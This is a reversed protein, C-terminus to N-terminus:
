VWALGGDFDMAVGDALAAAAAARPDLGALRARATVAGVRLGAAYLELVPRPGLVSADYSMRGGGRVVEPFVTLGAARTAEADVGGVIVGVRLDPNADALAAPELLGGPGLLLRRDAPEAVIMADCSAAAGARLEDYPHGVAQVACGAVRLFREIERGLHTQGLLLVSTRHGELGLEFLLRVAMFGQYPLMNCPPQHEHTGLVVIGRRRCAALDLDTAVFEWTEWMLPLAATPKLAEIERSTIPRLTGSNTVVDAQALQELRKELVVHVRDGLGARAAAARTAAEVDAARHHANDAALAYVHEAGARAALLPTWQYPGSAAETYVVLGDLSLEFHAITQDIVRWVRRESM